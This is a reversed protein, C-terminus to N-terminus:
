RVDYTRDASPGDLPGRWYPAVYITNKDAGARKFHGRVIHRVRVDGHPRGEVVARAAERVENSVRVSGGITWTRFRPSSAKKAPSWIPERKDDRSRLYLSLNVTLRLLANLTREDVESVAREEGQDALAWDDCSTGKGRWHSHRFVSAGSAAFARITLMDVKDPDDLYREILETVAARLHTPYEAVDTVELLRGLAPSGPRAEVKPPLLVGRAIDIRADVVRQQEGNNDQFFLCLEPPVVLRFSLFPWPVDGQDLKGVDSLLLSSALDRTVNFTPYADSVWGVDASVATNLFLAWMRRYHPGMQSFLPFVLYKLFHRDRFREVRPDARWAVNYAAFSINALIRQTETSWTPALNARVRKSHAEFQALAEVLPQLDRASFPTLVDPNNM